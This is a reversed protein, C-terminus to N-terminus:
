KRKRSVVKCRYLKAIAFAWKLNDIELAGGANSWQAEDIGAAINTHQGLYWGDQRKLYIRRHARILAVTREMLKEDRSM